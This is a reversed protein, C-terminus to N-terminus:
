RTEEVMRRGGLGGSKGWAGRERALTDCGRRPLAARNWELASRDGMDAFAGWRLEAHRTKEQNGAPRRPAEGRATGVRLLHRIAGVPLHAPVFQVALGCRVM